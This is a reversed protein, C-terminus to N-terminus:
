KKDNTDNYYVIEGPLNLGLKERAMRIIYEGDIPHDLLYKLEEVEESLEAKKIELSQKERQLETYKIIGSAFLALSGVVLVGLIVRLIVRSYNASLGRSVSIRINKETIPLPEDATRDLASEVKEEIDRKETSMFLIKREASPPMPVCTRNPSEKKRSIKIKGIM